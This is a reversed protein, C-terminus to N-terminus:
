EITLGSGLHRAIPFGFRAAPAAVRLDCSLAISAGGGTCAGQIAAITPVPVEDIATLLRQWRGLFIRVAAEGDLARVESIDAGSAFAKGGAGRFVLVRISRDAAVEGCLEILRSCMEASVANRTAPRNLVITAIGGELEVLIENSGGAARAPGAAAREM